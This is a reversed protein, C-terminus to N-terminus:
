VACNVPLLTRAPPGQGGSKKRSFAHRYAADYQRGIAASNRSERLYPWAPDSLKSKLLECEDASSALPDPILFVNAAAAGREEAAAKMGPSHVVVVQARALIFQEAVRFSRAMWSGRECLGASVALEEICAKLDHVVCTLNRVAAMGSAFSHTHVVDSNNEPDCALLSKRWNRVDQWARLLSFSPPQELDRKALYLEATGAGHPTVLYPRMGATLQEEVVPLIDCAYECAHIVRWKATRTSLDRPLIKGM